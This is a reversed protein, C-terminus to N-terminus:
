PGARSIRVSRLRSILLGWFFFVFIGPYPQRLTVKFNNDILVMFTVLGALCLDQATLSKRQRWLLLATFVILGFLPALALLGFNYAFDLYWNHASTKVERPPPESHGFLLTRGSENIGHSYLAWDALRSQVNVPLKGEVLTQFKGVYQGQDGFNSGNQKAVKYYIGTLLTVAVIGACLIALGALRGQKLQKLKRLTFLLVFGAYLGIALFSASAMVYIGMVGTLISLLGKRQDWFSELVWCFAAVFVVPVFQFHQYISFFYLHHTLTLTGQWWGIALQVPVLLMLLWMFTKPVVNDEDNVLQGLVLGMLPLVYQVALLIKRKGGDASASAVMLSLGIIFFFALIFVMAPIARPYNRCLAPIGILCALISIPLPLKALVGASDTLPLVSNYIGGSLLVFLPFLLALAILSLMLNNTRSHM